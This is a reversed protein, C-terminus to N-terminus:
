RQKSLFPLPGYSAVVSELLTASMAIFTLFNFENKKAIVFQKGETRPKIHEKDYSM